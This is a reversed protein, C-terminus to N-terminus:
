QLDIQCKKSHVFLNATLALNIQVKYFRNPIEEFRNPKLPRLCRLYNKESHCGMCFRSQSKKCSQSFKTNLANDYFFLVLQQILLKTHDFNKNTKLTRSDGVADFNKLRKENQLLIM